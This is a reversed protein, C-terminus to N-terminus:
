RMAASCLGLLSRPGANRATPCSDPASSPVGFSCGSSGVIAAATESASAFRRLASGHGSAMVQAPASLMCMLRAECMESRRRGRLEVGRANGEM